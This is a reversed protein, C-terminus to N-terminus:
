PWDIRHLAPQALQLAMGDDNLTLAMAMAITPVVLGRAGADFRNEVSNNEGAVMIEEGRTIAAGV